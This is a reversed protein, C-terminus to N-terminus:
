YLINSNFLSNHNYRFNTYSYLLSREWLTGNAFSAFTNFPFIAHGGLSVMHSEHVAIYFRFQM